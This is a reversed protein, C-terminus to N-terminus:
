RVELARVDAVEGGRPTADQGYNYVNSGNGTLVDIVNAYIVTGTGDHHPMAFVGGSSSFRKKTFSGGSRCRSIFTSAMRSPVFTSSSPPRTSESQILACCTFDPLRYTM